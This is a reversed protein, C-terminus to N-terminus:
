HSGSTYLPAPWTDVGKRRQHSILPRIQALPRSVPFEPCPDRTSPKEPGDRGPGCPDREGAGKTAPRGRGGRRCGRWPPRSLRPREARSRIEARGGDLHVRVRGACRGAVDEDRGLLSRPLLRGGLICRHYDVLATFRYPEMRQLIVLSVSEVELDLSVFSLRHEGPPLSPVGAVAVALVHDAVRGVALYGAKSGSVAVLPVMVLEEDRGLIRGQDRDVVLRWPIEGTEATRYFTIHEVPYDLLDIDLAPLDDELPVAQLVGLEVLRKKLRRGVELRSEVVEVDVGYIRM